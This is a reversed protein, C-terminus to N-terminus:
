NISTSNERKERMQALLKKSIQSFTSEIKEQGGTSEREVLRRAEIVKYIDEDLTNEGLFYTVMIDDSKGVVVARDEVQGQDKWTWGLEAIGVHNAAGLNHGESGKGYTVIIVPHKPSTNFLRKNEEIEYDDMDRWGTQTQVKGSISLPNYKHLAKKLTEVTENFWCAIVIKEDALMVEEVHEVIAGIKGKTTLKKLVGIKVLMEAKLAGEIQQSTAGTEALYSQLSFLAHNYEEMNEIEVQIVKRYKDPTTNPVQWRERRIFCLSRLKINLERLQQSARIAAKQDLFKKDMGKHAEMFKYAGGFEDIRGILTLLAALDEPGKVIPTGTLCYRNAKGEFVKKVCKYRRTKTNRCHHAEDLIVSQFLKELGNTKVKEYDTGARDGTTVKITIIEDVFHTEIGNYNTIVVDCMGNEILQPLQKANKKDLILVKKNTWEEWERKWNLRLSKPVICICPFTENKLVAGIGQMTNHTIVYDKTVFLKDPADVALCYADDIVTKKIAVIARSPEFKRKRKLYKDSKRKLAFPLFGKPLNITLIFTPRCKTKKTSMRVVGGLSQVLLKVGFALMSSSTNFQVTGKKSCYGDTDLLGQLLYQRAEYSAFIYIPPIAKEYSYKGMVGCDKLFTKLRSTKGNNVKKTITYEIGGNHKVKYDKPLYRKVLEILDEDASTINIRGTTLGGDGLLVGLIYPHINLIEEDIGTTKSPEFMPIYYRNNGSNYKIGDEIIEQTTKTYWNNKGSFRMNTTQVNWLHKDCCEIKTGDSFTIEYVQKKGQPYFGLVKTKEGNKSTIFDGVKITEIPHWGLDYKLIPTGKRLAKGLRMQDGNIVGMNNSMYEIGVTQYGYFKKRVPLNLEIYESSYSSELNDNVNNMMRLASDAIEFNYGLGFQKLENVSSLPVFWCRRENFYKAGPIERIVKALQPINTRFFVVFKEGNYTILNEANSASKSEERQKLSVKPVGSFDYNILKLKSAFPQIIGYVRFAENYSWDKPDKDVVTKLFDKSHNVVSADLIKKTFLERLKLLAGHLLTYDQM